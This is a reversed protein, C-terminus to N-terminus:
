QVAYRITPVPTPGLTTLLVTGDPDCEVFVSDDLPVYPMCMPSRLAFCPFEALFLLDPLRSRTREFDWSATVIDPKSSRPDPAHAPLWLIQKCHQLIDPYDDGADALLSIFYSFEAEDLLEALDSARYMMPPQAVVAVPISNRWSRGRLVQHLRAASRHLQDNDFPLTSNHTDPDLSPSLPVAGAEGQRYYESVLPAYDRPKTRPVRKWEGWTAPIPVALGSRRAEICTARLAELTATTQPTPVLPPHM